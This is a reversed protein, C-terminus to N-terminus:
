TWEEPVVGIPHDPFKAKKQDVLLVAEDVLVDVSNGIRLTGDPMEELEYVLVKTM